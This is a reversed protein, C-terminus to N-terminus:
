IFPALERAASWTGHPMLSSSSASLQSRDPHQSSISFPLSGSVAATVRSGTPKRSTSRCIAPSFVISSRPRPARSRRQTKSLEQIDNIGARLPDHFTQAAGIKLMHLIVQADKPDNKDWGGHLAERTRALALSSVLRVDFGAEILRWGLPRHYNGTAEFACVVPCDYGSLEGVLRDHEARSNIVTLSRRRSSGPREILVANKHKAIDIAVLVAHNPIPYRNTM